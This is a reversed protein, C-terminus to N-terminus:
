VHRDRDTKRVRQKTGVERLWHTHTPRRVAFATAVGVVVLNTADRPLTAEGEGSITLSFAAARTVTLENWLDLAMGLTVGGSGRVRMLVARHVRAERV